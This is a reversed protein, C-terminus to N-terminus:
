SKTKKSTPHSLNQLHSHLIEYPDLECLDFPWSFLFELKSLFWGAACRFQESADASNQAGLCCVHQAKTM